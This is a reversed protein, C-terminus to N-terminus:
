EGVMVGLGAFEGVGLAFPGPIPRKFELRMHTAPPQAGFKRRINGPLKYRSVYESGRVFPEPRCVVKEVDEREIGHVALEDLAISEKSIKKRAFRPLIVPTVSEWIKSPRTYRRITSHDKSEVDSLYCLIEGTGEDILREGLLRDRAWRVREAIAGPHDGILVRRIGGDSYPYGASPLPFYAFRPLRKKVGRPMHGALYQESRHSPFLETFDEKHQCAAHRLRAAVWNANRGSESYTGGDSEVLSFTAYPRRPFETERLYRVEAAVKQVGPPYSNSTLRAREAAYRRELSELSGEKPALLTEGGYYGGDSPFWKRLGSLRADDLSDCVQSRVIVRDDGTGLYSVARFEDAITAAYGVDSPSVDWAYVAKRPPSLRQPRHVITDVRRRGKNLSRTNRPGFATRPSEKSVEVAHITPPPLKEFWLLASRSATRRALKSVSVVAQYLRFPTPPWECEGTSDVGHFRGRLFEVEVALMTQGM